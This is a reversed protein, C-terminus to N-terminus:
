CSQIRAKQGENMAFQQLEQKDRDSLKTIDVNALGGGLSDMTAPIHDRRALQPSSEIHYKYTSYNRPYHPASRQATSNGSTRLAKSRLNPAFRRNHNTLWQPRPISKIAAM